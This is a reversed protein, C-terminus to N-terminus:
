HYGSGLWQSLKNRLRQGLVGGSVPVSQPINFGKILKLLGFVPDPTDPSCVPVAGDGSIQPYLLNVEQVPVGGEIVVTFSNVSIVGGPGVMWTQEKDSHPYVTITLAEERAVGTGIQPPSGCPNIISVLRESLTASVSNGTVKPDSSVRRADTITTAPEVPPPLVLRFISKLKDFAQQTTQPSDIEPNTQGVVIIVPDVVEIELSNAM